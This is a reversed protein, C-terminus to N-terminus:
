DELVKRMVNYARGYIGKSSSERSGAVNLIRVDIGELWERVKQAADSDSLNSLNIHLCPKNYKDALKKTLLSGRGINDFTFIVTADSDAVNKETRVAYSKSRLETM